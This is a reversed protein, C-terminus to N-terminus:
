PHKSPLAPSPHLWGGQAPRLRKWLAQLAVGFGGGFLRPAIGLGSELLLNQDRLFIGFRLAPQRLQAHLSEIVGHRTLRRLEGSEFLLQCLGLLLHLVNGHLGDFSGGGGARERVDILDGHLLGLVPRLPLM